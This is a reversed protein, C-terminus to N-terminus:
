AYQKGMPNDVERMKFLATVEDQNIKEVDFGCVPHGKSRFNRLIEGLTQGQNGDPQVEAQKSKEAERTMSRTTIPNVWIAPSISEPHGESDEPYIKTFRPIEDIRQCEKSKLEPYLSTGDEPNQDQTSGPKAQLVCTLQKEEEEIIKGKLQDQNSSDCLVSNTYGIIQNQKLHCGSRKAKRKNNETTANLIINFLAEVTGKLEGLQTALEQNSM